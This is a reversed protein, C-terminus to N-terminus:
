CYNNVGHWLQGLTPFLAPVAGTRLSVFKEYLFAFLTGVDWCQVTVCHFNLLLRLCFVTNVPFDLQPLTILSPM